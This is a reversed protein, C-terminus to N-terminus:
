RHTTKYTTKGPCYEVYGMERLFSEIENLLSDSQPFGRVEPAEMDELMNQISDSQKLLVGPFPIIKAKSVNHKAIV